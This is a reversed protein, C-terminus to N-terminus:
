IELTTFICGITNYLAQSITLKEIRSFLQTPMPYRRQPTLILSELERELLGVQFALRFHL